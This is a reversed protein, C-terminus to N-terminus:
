PRPCKDMSDPINTDPDTVCFPPMGLSFGLVTTGSNNSQTEDEAFRGNSDPIWGAFWLVNAGLSHTAQLMNGLISVYTGPMLSLGAGRNSAPTDAATSEQAVGTGIACGFAAMIAVVAIVILLVVLLVILCIWSFIATFSCGLAGFAAVAAIIGLIGGVVAGVTAGIAGGLAGACVQSDHYYCALMPSCPASPDSIEAPTAVSPPCNACGACWVKPPNNLCVIPHYLTKVVVDVRPQNNQFGVLGSYWFQFSPTVANVVGTVCEKFGATPAGCLGNYSQWAWVIVITAAAVATIIIAAYAVAGWATPTALIFWPINNFINGLWGGVPGVAMVYSSIGGSAFGWVTGIGGAVTTVIAWLGTTTGVITPAGAVTGSGGCHCPTDM